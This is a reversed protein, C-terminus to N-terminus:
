KDKGVSQFRYEPIIEKLIIRIQQRDIKEVADSLRELERTIIEWEHNGAPAILIQEHATSELREKDIFLEETLKEGPRLGTFTISISENPIAGSLTIMAEALELIKVPEGMNLVMIEGSRGIAAAQMVLLSAETVTMFYRTVEPHTVTVPGGREIQRLFLPVVSGDSGLVNGFRVTIFSVASRRAFSQVLIEAVRKSAGMVSTPRVAKDTSIFVFCGVKHKEALEVLIRTGFINNNVAEEPFDEMLPLQKYAAAHFVVDPKTAAFIADLKKAENIDVVYPTVIGNDGVEQLETQIDYLRNEARDVITLRAPSFHMVQRCIESGISGGGGTVLVHKDAIFQALQRTNLRVSERGLLDDVRIKRVQHVGVKGDIIEQMSPVTRHSLGTRGFVEVLKRRSSGSASPVAMIVDTVRYKVALKELEDSGGLVPVGHLRLGHLSADDDILGVPKYGMPEKKLERLLMEGASGAGVIFTRKGTLWRGPFLERISRLLFRSGGLLVVLLLWEIVFVGRPVMASGLFFAPVVIIVSGATVAKLIQISDNISAYRYYGSYTKFYLLMAFRIIVVVPLSAKFSFLYHPPIEGEFRIFFSLYYSAAIILLDVLILLLKKQVVAVSVVGEEQEGEFYSLLRFFLLRNLSLGVILTLWYTFLLIKSPSFFSTPDATDLMAFLMVVIGLSVVNFIRLVEGYVTRPFISRFFRSVYLIALWYATLVLNPWGIFYKLTESFSGVATKLHHFIVVAVLFSVQIMVLDAAFLAIELKRTKGKVSSM